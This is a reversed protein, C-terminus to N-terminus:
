RCSGATFQDEPSAPGALVLFGRSADDRLVLVGYDDVKASAAARAATEWARDLTAVPAPGRAAVRARAGPALRVLHVHLQEQTRLGRPNVVLAIESEDPIRQRAAEWAFSWLGDPRRPDEVGTVRTRPLAIGHVFGLPCGCMKIDRIAVYDRTEAWVQTSSRCDRGAGCSDEIPWGCRTCYDAQRSDLCESVIRWLVDSRQAAEVSCAVLFAAVALAVVPRRRPGPSQGRGPVTM